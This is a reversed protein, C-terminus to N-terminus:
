SIKRYNIEYGADSLMHAVSMRWDKYSHDTYVVGNVDGPMEIHGEKKVLCIVKERTYLGILLGHEFVVNQRARLKYENEGIAKGEDDPTYLVIGFGISPDKTYRELKEIITLSADHQERLVIPEITQASLFAKVENILADDHGHVIFVKSPTIKKNKEVLNSVEKKTGKAYIILEETIEKQKLIASELDNSYFGIMVVGSARDEARRTNAQQEKLVEGSIGSSFIRLREIHEISITRGNILIPQGIQYPEAYKNIVDELNTLDSKIEVKDWENKHHKEGLELIVHYYM